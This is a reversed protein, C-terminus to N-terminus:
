FPHSTEQFISTYLSEFVKESDMFVDVLIPDFHTERESAIISCTELHSYADKYVRKSRLADYVDAIAMIRASLPIHIGSLNDPYGTGDWKEHHSRAIEIGIEIFYNNPYKKFVDELTNAGITTHLKMEDFEMLTLKGPKLLIADKIGVKGIDHLPSAKHLTDVFNPKIIEKYDPLLSLKDALLQCFKQIRYLHEGTDSDRSEALKALAFITAMQSESIEKVQEHVIQTLNMNNAELEKQFFHLKLHTDVRARIEEIQFPKVIYDVGGQQFAKVKDKTDTLASLYIVPIEKFRDDSKLYRCVEYGDMEPMLVDLLILDPIEPSRNLLEIAKIGSTAVQRKYNKPLANSLIEIAETSDDIILVKWNFTSSTKKM